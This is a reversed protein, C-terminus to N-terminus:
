RYQEPHDDSGGEHRSRRPELTMDTVEAPPYEIRECQDDGAHAENRTEEPQFVLHPPLDMNIKHLVRVFARLLGLHVVDVALDAPLRPALNNRAIGEALRWRPSEFIVEENRRLPPKRKISVEVVALRINKRTINSGKHLQALNQESEAHNLVKSHGLYM